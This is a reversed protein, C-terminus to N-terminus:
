MVQYWMHIGETHISTKVKFKGICRLIGDNFLTLGLKLAERSNFDVGEQVKIILYRIANEVEETTLSGLKRQIKLM